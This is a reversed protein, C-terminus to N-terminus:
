LQIGYHKECYAINTVVTSRSVGARRAVEEMNTKGRTLWLLHLRDERTFYRKATRNGGRRPLRDCDYQPGYLLNTSRRDQWGETPKIKKAKQTSPRTTTPRTLTAEM